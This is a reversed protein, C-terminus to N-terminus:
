QNTTNSLRISEKLARVANQAEAQIRLLTEIIEQHDEQFEQLLGQYALQLEAETLFNPYYEKAAQADITDATEQIDIKISEVSIEVDKVPVGANKAREIINLLSQTLRALTTLFEAERNTLAENKRAFASAISEAVVRKREDVVNQLRDQFTQRFEQAVAQQTTDRVDVVESDTTQANGIRTGITLGIIALICVIYMGRHM